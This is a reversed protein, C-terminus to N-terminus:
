EGELIPLSGRATGSALPSYNSSAVCFMMVVEKRM